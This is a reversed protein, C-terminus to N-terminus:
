VIRILLPEKEVLDKIKSFIELMLKEKTPYTIIIIDTIGDSKHKQLVNDISIQKTSLLQTIKSLIGVRDKVSVRLYFCKEENEIKGFKPRKNSYFVNDSKKSITDIIDGVVASATAYMGAGEGTIFSKGVEDGFISIANYVGNIKALDDNIPLLTPHVKLHIANNKEEVIGLLKIAFGISLAYNIDDLTIKEIGEIYFDDLSVQIGYALNAIISLKHATDIGRTDVDPPTEAYGKNQAERLVEAFGKQHTLMESLIYNCTGNLIGYIKSFRNAILGEKLHKILPIGGGVSAEYSLFVKNKEALSHLENWHKALLAKNATVLHKKAQLTQKALSYAVGDAGGILEVVLDVQKLTALDEPNEYWAINKNIEINRKKNKDRASVAVIEIKVGTKELLYAQKRQLIDIVGTGVTGLGAIAVKLVQM